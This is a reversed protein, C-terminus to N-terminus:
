ANEKSAFYQNILAEEDEESLVWDYDKDNVIHPPIEIIPNDEIWKQMYEHKNFEPMIPKEKLQKEKEGDEEEEEGYEDEQKFREGEEFKQFADIEEKREEM